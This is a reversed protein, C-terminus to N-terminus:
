FADSKFVSSPGTSVQIARPGQVARCQAQGRAYASPDAGGEDPEGQGQHGEEARQHEERDPRDRRLGIFLLFYNKM